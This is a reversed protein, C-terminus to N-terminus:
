ENFSDMKEKIFREVSNKITEYEEQKNVSLKLAEFKENIIGRDILIEFSKKFNIDYLFTLMM